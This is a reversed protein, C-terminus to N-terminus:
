VIVFEDNTIRGDRNDDFSAFNVCPDLARILRQGRVDNGVSLFDSWLGLDVTVVGPISSCTTAARPIDGRGGSVFTLYSAISSSGRFVQSEISSSTFSPPTPLDRFVGRVVLVPRRRAGGVPTFLSGLPSGTYGPLGLPTFSPVPDPYPPDASAIAAILVLVAAIPIYLRNLNHSMNMQKEKRM